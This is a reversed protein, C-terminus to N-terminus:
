ISNTRKWNSKMIEIQEQPAIIDNSSEIIGTPIKKVLAEKTFYDSTIICDPFANRVIPEGISEPISYMKKLSPIGGLLHTPNDYVQSKIKPIVDPYLMVLRTLLHAGGSMSHVHLAEEDKIQEYVKKYAYYRKGALMGTFTLPVTISKTNYIKSYKSLVKTPYKLAGLLLVTKM